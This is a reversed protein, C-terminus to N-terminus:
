RIRGKRCNPCWARVTDGYIEEVMWGQAELSQRTTKGPLNPAMVGCSDGDCLWGPLEMQREVREIGRGFIPMGEFGLFDTAM